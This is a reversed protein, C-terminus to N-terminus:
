EVEIWMAPRVGIDTRDIAAWLIETDEIEKTYTEIPVETPHIDVNFDDAMRLWYFGELGYGDVAQYLGYVGNARAYATTEAVGLDYELMEERTICFVYDSASDRESTVTPLIRLKEDASFVNEFFENNLWTRLTSDSWQNQIEQTGNTAGYEKQDLIYKSIVYAKDKETKIVIWEIPEAGNSADGDQEYEGMVVSDGVAYQQKSVANTNIGNFAERKISIFPSEWLPFVDSNIIEQYKANREEVTYKSYSFPDYECKTRIKCYPTLEQVLSTYDGLNYYEYEEDPLRWLHCYGNGKIKKDVIVEREANNFARYYFMGNAWEYWDHTYNIYDLYKTAYAVITDEQVDLIKWEIPEAGNEYNFDQEWTGFTFTSGIAVENCSLRLSEDAVEKEYTISTDLWMAPFVPIVWNTSEAKNESNDFAVFNTDASYADAGFSRTWMAPHGGGGGGGYMSADYVTNAMNVSNFYEGIVWKNLGEYIDCDVYRGFGLYKECEEESLCFIKDITADLDGNDYEMIMKQENETFCNNYFYKHLWDRVQSDKWTTSNHSLAIVRATSLVLIQNDKKDIVEWEMEDLVSYDEDMDRHGFYIFDGIEKDSFDVINENVEVVEAEISEMVQDTSDETEEPVNIDDETAVVDYEETVETEEVIEIEAINAADEKGCGTLVSGAVMVAMFLAIMRKKM